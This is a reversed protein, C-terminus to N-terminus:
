QVGGLGPADYELFGKVSPDTPIWAPADFQRGRYAIRKGDLVIYIAIPVDIEPDSGGRFVTEIQMRPRPADPRGDLSEVSEIKCDDFISFKSM